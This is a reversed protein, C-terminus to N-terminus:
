PKARGRCAAPAGGKGYALAFFKAVAMMHSGVFAQEGHLFEADM